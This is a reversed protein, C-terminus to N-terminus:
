SPRTLTQRESTHEESRAACQDPLAAIGDVTVLIILTCLSFTAEPGPNRGRLNFSLRMWNPLGAPYCYISSRHTRRSCRMERSGGAIDTSRFSAQGVKFRINWRGKLRRHNQFTM